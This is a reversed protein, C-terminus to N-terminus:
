FLTRWLGRILAVGYWTVGATQALLIAVQVRVSWASTRGCAYLVGSLAAAALMGTVWAAPPISLLRRYTEPAEMWLDWQILWRCLVPGLTAALAAWGLFGAGNALALLGAWGEWARHEFNRRVTLM